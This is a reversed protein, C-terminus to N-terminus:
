NILDLLVGAPHGPSRTALCRASLCKKFYRVQASAKILTVGSDILM